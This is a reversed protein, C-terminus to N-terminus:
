SEIVFHLRSFLESNSPLENRATDTQTLSTQLSKKKSHVIEVRVKQASRDAWIVEFEETKVELEPLLSFLQCIREQM